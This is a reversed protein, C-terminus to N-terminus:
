SLFKGHHQPDPGMNYMADPGAHYQQPPYQPAAPRHQPRVGGYGRGTAGGEWSGEM